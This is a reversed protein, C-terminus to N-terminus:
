RRLELGSELFFPDRTPRIIEREAPGMEGAILIATPILLLSGDDDGAGANEKM